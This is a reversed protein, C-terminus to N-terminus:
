TLAHERTPPQYPIESAKRLADAMERITILATTEFSRFSGSAAVAVAISAASVSDPAEFLAYGDHEGFAYWINKLECGAAEFAPRAAEERDQPDKILAAWAEPTYGFRALYLAM